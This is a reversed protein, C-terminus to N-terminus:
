NAEFYNVEESSIFEFKDCIAPHPQFRFKCFGYVEEDLEQQLTSSVFIVLLPFAVISLKM